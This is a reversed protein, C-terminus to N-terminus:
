FPHTHHAVQRTHRQQFKRGIRTRLRDSPNECFRVKLWTSAFIRIDSIQHNDTRAYGPDGGRDFRLLRAQVKHNIFRILAKGRNMIERALLRDIRIWCLHLVSTLQMKLRIHLLRQQLLQLRLLSLM